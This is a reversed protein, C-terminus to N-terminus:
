VISLSSTEQDLWVMVLNGHISYTIHSVVCRRLNGAPQKPEHRSSGLSEWPIGIINRKNWHGLGAILSIYIFSSLHYIYIFPLSYLERERERRSQVYQWGESVSPGQQCGHAVSSPGPGAWVRAFDCSDAEAVEALLWFHHSVTVKWQFYLQLDVM